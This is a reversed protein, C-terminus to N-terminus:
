KSSSYIYQSESGSLPGTRPCYAAAISIYALVLELGDHLPGLAPKALVLGAYSRARGFTRGYDENFTDLQISADAAEDFQGAQLLSQARSMDHPRSKIIAMYSTEPLEFCDIVLRLLNSDEPLNMLLHGNRGVLNSAQDLLPLPGVNTLQNKPPLKETLKLM